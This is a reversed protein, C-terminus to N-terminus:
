FLWLLQWWWFLWTQWDGAFWWEAVVSRVTMWGAWIRWLWQGFGGKRERDRDIWFVGGLVVLNMRLVAGRRSWLNMSM